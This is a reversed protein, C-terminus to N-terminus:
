EELTITCRSKARQIWSEELAHISLEKSKPDLEERARTYEVRREKSGVRRSHDYVLEKSQIWSEELAHISSEERKPDM